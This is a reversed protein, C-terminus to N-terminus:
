GYLFRVNIIVWPDLKGGLAGRLSDGERALFAALFVIGIIKGNIKTKDVGKVAAAGPCGGYSHMLVVVDKGEEELLPYLLKQRIAEADTAVSHSEPDTSGASPLQMSKVPYGANELLAILEEYHAPTHWAGPILVISPKSQSM